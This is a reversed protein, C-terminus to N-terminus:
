PRAVEFVISNIVSGGLYVRIEYVGPEDPVPWPGERLQALGGNAPWPGFPGLEGPLTTEQSTQRNFLAYQSFTVSKKVQNDLFLIDLIMEDGPAFTRAIGTPRPALTPFGAYSPLKGPPFAQKELYLTYVPSPALVPKRNCSAALVALLVLALILVFVVRRKNSMIIIEVSFLSCGTNADLSSQSSRGHYNINYKM